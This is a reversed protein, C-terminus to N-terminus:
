FTPLFFYVKISEICLGATGYLKCRMAFNLDMLEALKTINRTQLAIVAEDAYSGLTKMGDCLEPERRDWREKVTSHVKGSDGASCSNCM